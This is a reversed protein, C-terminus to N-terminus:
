YPQLHMRIYLDVDPVILSFANLEGLARTAQELLTNIRPDDWVWAHNIPSPTFSRYEFQRKYSGSKFERLNM